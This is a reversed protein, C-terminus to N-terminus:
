ITSINIKRHFEYKYLSENITLNGRWGSITILFIGITTPLKTYKQVNDIRKDLGKFVFMDGRSNMSQITTSIANIGFGLERFVKHMSFALMISGIIALVTEIISM